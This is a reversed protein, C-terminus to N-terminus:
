LKRRKRNPILGLKKYRECHLSFCLRRCQYELMAEKESRRNYNLIPQSDLIIQMLMNNDSIPHLSDCIDRIEKLIPMRIDSLASCELIFHEMNEDGNGCLLCTPDIRNQNFSSRNVQLIYTGTVLKLKLRVRPIEQQNRVDQLLPHRRGCTYTSTSLFRLSPYLTSEFKIKDEWYQDVHQNVIRKWTLKAIPKFLMDFPDSLGYKVFIKKIAIYWSNSKDTKTSLQREALRWETSTQDLRCINGYLSLARKHLYGEIPITGSLIYIATDATNVPLTLIHKMFKKHIRELTELSKQKPLVVELGYLLVPMVYTQYLQISTEPDMGQLDASMLSYFSRRSKKINENITIDESISSRRLGMHMTETVVPMEKGYITWGSVDPQTDRSKKGGPIVMVVSKEPQLVYREMRSFDDSTGVLTQLSVPENTVPATDDAATPATCDIEGIKGGEGTESMRNLSPNLYIKYMDTSLIGGQRVGKHIYFSKSTQGMWRVVTQANSHLSYILNWLAGDVGIHFLRRM